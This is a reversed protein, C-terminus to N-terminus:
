QGFGKNAQEVQLVRKLPLLYRVSPRTPERSMSGVRSSAKIVQVELQGATDVPGDLVRPLALPGDIDAAQIFPFPRPDPGICPQVQHVIHLVPVPSAGVVVELHHATLRVAHAVLGESIDTVRSKVLSSRVVGTAVESVYLRIDEFQEPILLETFSEQLLLVSARHEAPHCPM